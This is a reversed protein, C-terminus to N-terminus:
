GSGFLKNFQNIGLMTWGEAREYKKENFFGKFSCSKTQLNVNLQLLFKFDM